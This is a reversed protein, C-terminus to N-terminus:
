SVKSTSYFLRSSSKREMPFKSKTLDRDKVKKLIMCKLETMETILMLTCNHHLQMKCMRHLHLDEHWSM